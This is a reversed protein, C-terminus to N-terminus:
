RPPLRAEIAALRANLQAQGDKLAFLQWFMGLQIAIVLALLAGQVRTTTKLEAIDTELKRVSTKLTSVETTLTGLRNELGDLRKDVGDLRDDIGDLRADIRDFRQTFQERLGEALGESLEEAQARPMGASELRRTLKLTDIM